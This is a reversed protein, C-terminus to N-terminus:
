FSAINTKKKNRSSYSISANIEFEELGYAFKLPESKPDFGMGLAYSYIPVGNRYWRIGQFVEGRNLRYVCKLNLPHGQKVPDLIDIGTVDLPFM